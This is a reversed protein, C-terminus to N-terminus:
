PEEPGPVRLWDIAPLRLTDLWGDICGFVNSGVFAPLRETSRRASFKCPHSFAELPVGETEAIPRLLREAEGGFAVLVIKGRRAQVCSRTLRGVWAEWGLGRHSGPKGPVVSLRANLLLVGQERWGRLSAWERLLVPLGGSHRLVETAINGFSSRLRPGQWEPRIGFALGNAKTPDPYPDQGLLIVRVEAPLIGVFPAAIQSLVIPNDDEGLAGAAQAADVLRLLEDVGSSDMWKHLQPSAMPM